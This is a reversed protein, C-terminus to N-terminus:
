GPQPPAARRVFEVRFRVPGCLEVEHPTQPEIRGVDGARLTIERRAPELVRYVLAGELVCLRGWAGERTTHARLLGAPTTHEDWVPTTKYVEFCGVDLPESWRLEGERCM